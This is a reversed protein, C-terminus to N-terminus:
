AFTDVLGQSERITIGTAPMDMGVAAPQSKASEAFQRQAMEQFSQQSQQGANINAQGLQLGSSQMSERLYELGDELAQRVDANDSFFAADAQDNNVSIVVQVPGLDPPNLTLTASQEGNGVMWVVKQSIEQNWGTRGPYAMIQNSSGAQALAQTSPTTAAQTMQLSQLGNIAGSDKNLDKGADKAFTDKAKESGLFKLANELSQANKSDLELSGTDKELAIEQPRWDATSLKESLTDKWKDAGATQLPQPMSETLANSLTAASIEKLVNDSALTMEKQSLSEELTSSVKELNDPQLHARMLAQVMADQPQLNNVANALSAIVEAEEAKLEDESVESTALGDKDSESGSQFEKLRAVLEDINARHSDSASKASVDAEGGDEVQKNQQTEAPKGAPKAASKTASHDSTRKAQVQKNLLSQFSNQAGSDEQSNSSNQNSKDTVVNNKPAEEVPKVALVSKFSLNQM